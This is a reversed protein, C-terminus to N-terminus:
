KKKIMIISFYHNGRKAIEPSLETIFENETGVLEGFLALGKGNVKKIIEDAVRGSKMIFLTSAIKFIDDFEERLEATRCGSREKISAPMVVLIDDGDAIPCKAKAGMLQFSSIGPIIEVDFERKEKIIRLISNFTSFILPDGEVVFASKIGSLVKDKITEYARQWYPILKEEKTTMPFLLKVIEKGSIDVVKKVTELAFSESHISKIPAFIVECKEIVTKGKLTILEPDGPGVGVCYLRGAMVQAGSM